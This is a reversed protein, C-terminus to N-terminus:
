CWGEKESCYYYMLTGHLTITGASLSDALTIVQSAPKSDDLFVTKPLASVIPAGILKAVSPSDLKVVMAPKNEINIHYGDKPLLHFLLTLKGNPRAFHEKASVSFIVNDNAKRTSKDAPYALSICAILLILIYTKMPLEFIFFYHPFQSHM